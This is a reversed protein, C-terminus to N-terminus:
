IKWTNEDTMWNEITLKEDYDDEIRTKLDSKQINFITDDMMWNELQMPSETELVLNSTAGTFLSENTMWTELELTEETSEEILDFYRSHNFSKGHSTSEWIVPNELMAFAQENFHNNTILSERLDQSNSTLNLLFFSIIVATIRIAAKQVNNKTKM